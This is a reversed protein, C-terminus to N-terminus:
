LVYKIIKIKISIDEDNEMKLNDILYMPLMINNDNNIKFNDYSGSLLEIENIIIPKILGIEIPSFADIEVLYETIFGRAAIVDLTEYNFSNEDANVTIIKGANNALEVDYLDIIRYAKTTNILELYDTTIDNLYAGKGRKFLYKRIQAFKFTTLDNLNSYFNISINFIYIETEEIYISFDTFYDNITQEVISEDIYWNNNLEINIPGINSNKIINNQESTNNNQLLKLADRLRDHAIKTVTPNLFDLIITNTDHDQKIELTNNVIRIVCSPNTIIHTTAGTNNIFRISKSNPTVDSLFTLHNYNYM